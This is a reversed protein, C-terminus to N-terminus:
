LLNWWSFQQADAIAQVLESLRACYSSFHIRDGAQSYIEAQAFLSDIEDMPAHDAVMATTHWASKWQEQAQEALLVSKEWNGSLAEQSAQELQQALPTAANTLLFSSILGLILFLILLGLGMYFRKEM